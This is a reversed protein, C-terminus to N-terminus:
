KHKKASIFINTDPYKLVIVMVNVEFTFFFFYSCSSLADSAIPAHTNTSHCDAAASRFNHTQQVLLPFESAM